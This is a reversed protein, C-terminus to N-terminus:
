SFLLIICGILIFIFLISLITPLVKIEDDDDDDNLFIAKIKKKFKNDITTKNNDGGSQDNEKKLYEGMAKCNNTGLIKIDGKIFGDNNFNITNVCNVITTNGCETRPKVYNSAKACSPAWCHKDGLLAINLNDYNSLLNNSIEEYYEVPYNCGCFEQNEGGKIEKNFQNYAKDSRCYRVQFSKCDATISNNDWDPSYNGDSNGEPNEISWPRCKNQNQITGICCSIKDKDSLPNGGNSSM